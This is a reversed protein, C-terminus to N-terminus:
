KSIELFMARKKRIEDQMKKSEFHYVYLRFLLKVDTVSPRLANLDSFVLEILSYLTWTQIFIERHGLFNTQKKDIVAYYEEHRM